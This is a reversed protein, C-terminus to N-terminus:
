NMPSNPATRRPVTPRKQAPAFLMSEPGGCFFFGWRGVMVAGGTLSRRCKGFECGFPTGDPATETVAMGAIHSLVLDGFIKLIQLYM